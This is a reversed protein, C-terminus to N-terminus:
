TDCKTIKKNKVVCRAGLMIILGVIAESTINFRIMKRSHISKGRMLPGSSWRLATM